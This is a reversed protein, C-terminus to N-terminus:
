KLTKEVSSLFRQVAFLKVLFNKVGLRMSNVIMEKTEYSTIMIIRAHSLGNENARRGQM